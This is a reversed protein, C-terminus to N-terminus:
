LKFFYKYLYQALEKGLLLPEGKANQAGFSFGAGLLLVPRKIKMSDFVQSLDNAVM